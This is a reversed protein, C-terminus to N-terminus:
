CYNQRITQYLSDFRDQIRNMGILHIISLFIGLNHVYTVFEPDM